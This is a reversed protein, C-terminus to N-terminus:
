LGPKVAFRVTYDVRHLLLPKDAFYEDTAKRAGEWYGYDDIIVVGGPSLRPYLHVLEHMTSEYWDTDLRLLSIREPAGEPITQEVRGRVFHVRDAPYPIRAVNQQVVELPIALKGTDSRKMWQAGAVGDKETVDPMGAFTDFLHLHRSTEGLELLTRAIAMMSGGRWVGCEVIDGAIKNKVIYEVARCLGDIAEPSTMTYPKVAEFTAVSRADLDSPISRKHKIEYDGIRM